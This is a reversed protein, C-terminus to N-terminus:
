RKVALVVLSNCCWTAPRTGALRRDVACLARYLPGLPRPLRPRHLTTSPILNTVAHIGWTREVTLGAGALLASLARGGFLRLRPYGPYAIVVGAAGRATLARWAERPGLGYGLPDGTVSSLLAWGLDLSGRHECELLLRGGRRLGRALEALGRAPDDLFSLTSGCCSVVDFTEPRYPLAEIDGRVLAAAPVRERAVALLGASLDLGHTAYGLEALLRTQFGTGCGDARPRPPRRVPAYVM